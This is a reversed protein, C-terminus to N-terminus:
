VPELSSLLMTKASEKDITSLVGLPAFLYERDRYLKVDPPPLLENPYQRSLTKVSGLIKGATKSRSIVGGTGFVIKISTLDRGEITKKRGLPGYYYKIRGAHRRLATNFCQQALAISFEEMKQNKPYPSVSSILEKYDPFRHSLEEEMMEAVNAANVFVGLDGEVTRKEYPEPTSAFEALEPNGRTVSDIDTTAGGIDVVLVDEYFEALLSAANMVAAPTPIIPYKVIEEIKVMGKAQTIHKSFLNQIVKRVPIINLEDVKPYVNETVTVTKGTRIMINKVEESVAINGAYVFPCNLESNSFFRANHLVTESEGYDVGGALLVMNPNVSVIPGFQHSQIKGATVYKIIAGAGLAAEKAAKVTMDYVLGHVTIRLGGAASSSALFIEWSVKEKKKEELNKIAREIGLTVDGENVTTFHEGQGILMPNKTNLGSFASVLTTTSGIEAILSDVKIM